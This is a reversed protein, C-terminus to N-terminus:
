LVFAGHYIFDGSNDKAVLTHYLISISIVKDAQIYFDGPNIHETVTKSVGFLVREFYDLEYRNQVEILIIQGKDDKCKLDVRNFKQNELHNSESELIEIVTINERLLNSLFDELIDFNAKDRLITKLAFDFRILRKSM